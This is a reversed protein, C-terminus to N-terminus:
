HMKLKQENYMSCFRNENYRCISIYKLNESSISIIAILLDLAGLIYSCSLAM